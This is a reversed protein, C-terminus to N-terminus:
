YKKVKTKRSELSNGNEFILKVVEITEVKTIPGNRENQYTLKFLEVIKKVETKGNADANRIVETVPDCSFDGSTYGIGTFITHKFLTGKIESTTLTAEPTKITGAHAYQEKWECKLNKSNVSVKIFEKTTSIPASFTNTSLILSSLLGLNAIISKM